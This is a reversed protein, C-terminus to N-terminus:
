ALDADKAEVVSSGVARDQAEIAVILFAAALVLDDRHGSHISLQADELLEQVPTDQIPTLRAEGYLNNLERIVEVAAANPVSYLM